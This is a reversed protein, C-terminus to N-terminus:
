VGVSQLWYHLLWYSCHSNSSQVVKGSTWHFNCWFNYCLMASICINILPNQLYELAWSSFVLAIFTQPLFGFSILWCHLVNGQISKKFTVIVKSCTQSNVWHIDYRCDYLSTHYLIMLQVLTPPFHPKDIHRKVLLSYYPFIVEM